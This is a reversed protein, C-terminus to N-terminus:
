ILGSSLYLHHLLVNKRAWVEMQVWGMLKNMISLTKSLNLHHSVCFLHDHNFLLFKCWLRNYSELQMNMWTHLRTYWTSCIWWSETQPGRTIDYWIWFLTCTIKGDGSMYMTQATQPGSHVLVWWCVLCLNWTQFWVNMLAMLNEIFNSVWSYGYNYPSFSCIQAM